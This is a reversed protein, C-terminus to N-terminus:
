TQPESARTAEALEDGPALVLWIEGFAEPQEPVVRRTKTLELIALFLGVLRGRTRPPVFLASLTLPGERRLREVIQETYVHLPTQDVVIAQPENALTERLLRGFASVLDWLEVPRLAPAAPSRPAPPAQRALRQAQREARSELLAAAEKFRKYQLLQLV